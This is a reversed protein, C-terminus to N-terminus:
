YSLNKPLIESILKGDFDLKYVTETWDSVLINDSHIEFIDTGGLSVFIDRAGFQWLIKGTKDLRSIELEGHILYTEELKFIQFCTAWDAKTQWDMELNPLNLCFVSDCCCILLKDEDIITSTDHIGTAGGEGAILCSDIEKENEYIRIGHMAPVIYEDNGRFYIQNYSKENDESNLKFSNDDFIEIKLDRYNYKKM